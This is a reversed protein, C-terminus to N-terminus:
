RGGNGAAFLKEPWAGAGRDACAIVSLIDLAQMVSEPECVFFHDKEGISLLQYWSGKGRQLLIVPVIRGAATWTAFIEEAQRLEGPHNFLLCLAQGVPCGYKVWNLAAAASGFTHTEYGGLRVIFHIKEARHSDEDVVLVVRKKM